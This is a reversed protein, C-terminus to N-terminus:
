PIISFFVTFGPVSSIVIRRVRMAHQIRIAVFVCESYTVSQKEMAVIKPRVLGMTVNYTYQGGQKLKIDLSKQIRTAV